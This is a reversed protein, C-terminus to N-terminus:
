VSVKLVSSGALGLFERSPGVCRSGDPDQLHSLSAVGLDVVYLKETSLRVTSLIFGVREM